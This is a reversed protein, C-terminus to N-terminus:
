QALASALRDFSDTWGDRHLAVREQTAFGDQELSVVTQGGDTDLTVTVV